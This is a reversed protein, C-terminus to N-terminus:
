LKMYTCKTSSYTTHLKILLTICLISHLTTRLTNLTKLLRCQQTRIFYQKNQQKIYYGSTLNWRGLIKNEQFIYKQLFIVFINASCLVFIFKFFFVLEQCCHYSSHYWVFTLLLIYTGCIHSEDCFVSKFIVKFWM